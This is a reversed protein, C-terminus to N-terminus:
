DYVDFHELAGWERTSGLEYRPKNTQNNWECWSFGFHALTWLYILVIDNDTYTLFFRHLIVFREISM